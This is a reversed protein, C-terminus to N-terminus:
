QKQGGSRERQERIAVGLLENTIRQMDSINALLKQATFLQEQLQKEHEEMLQVRKKIAFLAFFWALRVIIVVIIIAIIIGLYASIFANM